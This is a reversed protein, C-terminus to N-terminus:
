AGGRGSAPARARQAAGRLEAFLLMGTLDGRWIYYQVDLSREAGRALLVSAAFSERANPLAHIGALGPHQMVLPAIGRGLRTEKTDLLASSVSRSELSPLPNLWRVGGLAVAIVIIVTSTARLARM